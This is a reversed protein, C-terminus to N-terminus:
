LDFLEAANDGLIGDIADDSLPLDRVAEINDGIDPIMPAPWDSGFITKDAIQELRPFADLLQNPPISSIDFYLNDHRRYLFFAEDYYLPRGGHAMIVDCDFDLCVDDVLMPDAHVNRAGPFISTGTHIMVPLGAEACREYVATVTGDDAGVPPTRYANPAIDQHPPHIKVGDLALDDIIRDLQRHVDNVDGDLSVGAFARLRDPAADRFESAYENVDTPYGVIDPSVYNICVAIDVGQEDLYEVFRQPERAMEEAEEFKSQHHRFLDVADDDALWFPNMHVHSDVIM